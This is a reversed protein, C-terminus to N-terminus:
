AHPGRRRPLWEEYLASVDDVLRLHSFRGAVETRASRGLRARSEPDRALGTMADALAARNGSEVLLGTRGADVLDPVGGVATAVVAKGGAMAEILAVPTGENLSSLVCVDMASYVDVLRDTWGLIHVHMALGADRIQREVDARLPGDGVLLLRADPVAAVTSAFADLLLAINKIPVFRGVFGFVPAATPIGLSSRLASVGPEMSLLAGLDLGLPTVVVREAPAVRFRDVIDSRQAPSITIICDTISALLRETARVAANGVPGFYGALVHGHFTHVLLARQRRPRTANFLAGAIRGLAGAKATHTHIVDPAEAFVLRVLKVLARLDSLLSIRPGLEDIAVVRVGAARTLEELSAEGPGVAGHVLLTQYGRRNLGSNLLVVHRAPGGVNLRAIIRLVNVRADPRRAQHRGRDMRLM